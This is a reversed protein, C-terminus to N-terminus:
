FTVQFHGIIRTGKVLPTPLEDPYRYFEPKAVVGEVCGPRVGACPEKYPESRRPYTLVASYPRILNSALHHAVLNRFLHHLDDVCRLRKWLPSGSRTVLRTPFPPSTTSM